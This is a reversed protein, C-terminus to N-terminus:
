YSYSVNLGFQYNGSDYDKPKLLPSAIFADAYVGGFGTKLGIFVGSLESANEESTSQGFLKGYDLGAYPRWRNVPLTFENRWYLGEDALVSYDNGYGRVTYRGGISFQESSYLPSNTAQGRLASFYSLPQGAISFGTGLSIDLTDLNYRFTPTGAARDSADDQAGFLSSGQRHAYVIDLTSKGLYLRYDIAGEFYASHRRNVLIETDNIFARSWRKSYKIDASLKSNQDRYLLHEFLLSFNHSRGRSLNQIAGTGITSESKNMSGSIQFISNGFPFSYNLNFGESSQGAKNELGRSLGLYLSDAIGAPNYANLGASLNWKGLSESGSNNVSVNGGYPRGENVIVLVDTNGVGQESPLLRINASLNVVRSIQELGQEIERLNLLEGESVPFSFYVERDYETDQANIKGVYGPVFNIILTGANLDQEPIYFRATSYGREYSASVLDYVVQALVEGNICKSNYNDAIENLFSFEDALLEDADEADSQVHIRIESIDFCPSDFGETLVPKEPTIQIRQRELRNRRERDITQQEELRDLEEISGDIQNGDASFAFSSVVVLPFALLRSKM